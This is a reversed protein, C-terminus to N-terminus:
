YRENSFTPYLPIPTNVSERPIRCHVCPGDYFHYFVIQESRLFSIVDRCFDAELTKDGGGSNESYDIFTKVHLMDGDLSFTYTITSSETDM